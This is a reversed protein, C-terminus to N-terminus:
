PQPRGTVSLYPIPAPFAAGCRVAAERRADTGDVPAFAISVEGSAGCTRHVEEAALHGVRLVDHGGITGVVAGAPITDCDLTEALALGAATTRFGFRGRCNQKMLHLLAERALAQGYDEPPTPMPEMDVGRDRLASVLTAPDAPKEALALLVAADEDSAGMDRWHAIYDVPGYTRGEKALTKELLGRWFDFLDVAAGDNQLSAETMLAIANGCSYYLSFAGKKAAETLPTTGLGRRCDNIAATQFELFRREDIVGLELLAREALADASGEHLWSHEMDPYEVVGGNWLHVTEHALLRLYRLLGEESETEWATGEATLQVAGPVVGGKFSYGTQESRTFSTLVTPRAPLAVALRRSFLEFLSPITEESAARLWAPFGPDMISIIDDSELPEISGFYVYSGQYSEDSWELASRARKGGAIVSEGEGPVLRFTNVICSRCDDEEDSRVARALLHGTYIAVSEDTFQVFFMYDKELVRAYEPFRVAITRSPQGDTRLVEHDGSRAMSYGPTLVEFIEGRFATTDREFRLERAPQALHWTARWTRGDAERELAVFDTAPANAAPRTTTACATLLIMAVFMALRHAM